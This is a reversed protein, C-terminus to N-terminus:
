NRPAVAPSGSGGPYREALAGARAAADALSHLTVSNAGGDVLRLLRLDNALM